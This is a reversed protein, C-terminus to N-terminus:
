PSATPSSRSASSTSSTSRGSSAGYPKLFEWVFRQAAYFVVLLYFGNRMFFPERRALAALAYALFAAM